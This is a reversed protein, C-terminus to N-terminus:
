AGAQVTPGIYGIYGINSGHEDGYLMNFCTLVGNRCPDKGTKARSIRCRREIVM